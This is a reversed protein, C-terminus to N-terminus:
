DVREHRSGVMISFPAVLGGSLSKPEAYASEVAVVRDGPGYITATLKVDHRRSRDDTSRVRNGSASFVMFQVLIRAYMVPETSSSSRRRLSYRTVSFRM